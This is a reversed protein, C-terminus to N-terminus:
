KTLSSSSLNSLILLFVYLLARWFNVKTCDAVGSISYYYIIKTLLLNFFIEILWLELKLNTDKSTEFVDGLIGVLSQKARTVWWRRSINFTKVLSFCSM